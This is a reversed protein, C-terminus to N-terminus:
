PLCLGAILDRPHHDDRKDLGGHTVPDWGGRSALRTRKIIIPGWGEAKPLVRYTYVCLDRESVDLMRLEMGDSTELWWLDPLRQCIWGM